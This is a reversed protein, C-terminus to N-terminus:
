QSNKFKQVSKKGMKKISLKPTTSIKSKEWDQPRVVWSELNLGQLEKRKGVDTLIICKMLHVERSADIKKQMALEEKERRREAYRALANDFRSQTAHANELAAQIISRQHEGCLITFPTHHVGTSCFCCQFRLM